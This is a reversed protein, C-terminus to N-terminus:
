YGKSLLQCMRALSLTWVPDHISTSHEMINLSVCKRVFGLPFLLRPLAGLWLLSDSFPLVFKNACKSLFDDARIVIVLMSVRGVANESGLINYWSANWTRRTCARVTNDVGLAVHPYVYIWLRPKQFKTKSTFFPGIHSLMQISKMPDFSLFCSYTHAVARYQLM